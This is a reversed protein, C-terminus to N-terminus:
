MVTVHGDGTLVIHGAMNSGTVGAPARWGLDGEAAAAVDVLLLLLLLLLLTDHREM